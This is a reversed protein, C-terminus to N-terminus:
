GTGTHAVGSGVTNGWVTSRGTDSYLFYALFNTGSDKMRRLPVAATSGGAANSGEGLTVTTSAGSTCTVLVSGSGDLAASANTIAPDYAGFAVASTTIACNAAVSATVSLNSTATAALVVSSVGLGLVATGAVILTRANWKKSLM